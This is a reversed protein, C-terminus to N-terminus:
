AAGGSASGGAAAIDLAPAFDDCLARVSASQIDEGGYVSLQWVHILRATYERKSVTLHKAALALCDGETSSERIPVSHVHTLRSLLGRYLLALAARHNGADWLSRAAAGIDSPLTEPRIDLSRVHTPAVFRTERASLQRRRVLRLLYVAM